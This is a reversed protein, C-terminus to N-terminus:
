NISEMMLRSNDNGVGRLDRIIRRGLRFFRSTGTEADRRIRIVESTLMLRSNGNGIGRGNEIIVNGHVLNPGFSIKEPFLGMIAVLMITFFQVIQMQSIISRSM